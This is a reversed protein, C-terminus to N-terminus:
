DNLLLLGVGIVGPGTHAGLVPSVEDFYLHKVNPFKDKLADMVEMAEDKCTGYAVGLNYHKHHGIRKEITDVMKALSRKRGRAKTVTYYIGDENCSIVPNLNLATGIISSVLGIRGGKKLYELTPISFYINGQSPLVNLNKTIDDYSMGADILEKVYAAQIGGGIGISKTDVLYSTIEPHELLSLRISNHTGSLGSSITIAIIHTYGQQKITNIIDHTYPISPLSTKPIEDDLRDYIEQASIEIKDMYTNEKYMINLPLVFIGGSQISVTPVDMGSDVLLAIKDTLQTM